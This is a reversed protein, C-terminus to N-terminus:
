DIECSNGGPELGRDKLTKTLNSDRLDLNVNEM